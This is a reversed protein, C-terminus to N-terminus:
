NQYHYNFVTQKNPQGHAWLQKVMISLRLSFFFSLRLPHIDYSTNHVAQALCTIAPPWDHGLSQGHHGWLM